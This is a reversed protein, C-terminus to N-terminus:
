SGPQSNVIGGDSSITVGAAGEVLPIRAEIQDLTRYTKSPAGIPPTLDGGMQATAYLGFAGSLLVFTLIRKM